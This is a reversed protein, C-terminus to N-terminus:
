SQKEDSLMIASLMRGCNPGLRRASFFRHDNKYTCLRHQEIEKSEVGSEKLIIRNAMWLDIHWKGDKRFPAVKDMQFGALSFSEFVEDGVEFADPSIAPGIVACIDIPKTGFMGSMVNIVAQTIRAVTGRWGAHIAAVVRHVKDLLLIPVCDATNVGVCINPIKTVLADVGELYSNRCDDSMSLVDKDIIRVQIDHVQHPIVLSRPEINLYRCVTNHDVENRRANFSYSFSRNPCDYHQTTFAVVGSSMNYHLFNPIDNLM